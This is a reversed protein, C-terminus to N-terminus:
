GEQWLAQNGANDFVCLRDGSELGQVLYHFADKTSVASSVYWTTRSIPAWTGLRTISDLVLRRNRASDVLAFSIFLNNQYEWHAGILDSLPQKLHWLAYRSVPDLVLLGANSDIRPNMMSTNIQRFAEQLSHPTQVYWLDTNLRTTEGLSEIAPSVTPYGPDMEQLGLAVYLITNEM